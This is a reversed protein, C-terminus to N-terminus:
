ERTGAHKRPKQKIKDISKFSEVLNQKTTFQFKVKLLIKM